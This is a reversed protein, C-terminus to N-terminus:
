GAAKRKNALLSCVAAPIAGALAILGAMLGALMEGFHFLAVAAMVAGAGAVATGPVRVYIPKASLAWDVAASWWAPILAVSYAVGLMWIDLHHRAEPVPAIAVLMALLPFLTTFIIFRKM